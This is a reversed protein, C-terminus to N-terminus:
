VPSRVAATRGTAASRVSPISRYRPNTLGDWFEDITPCRVRKAVIYDLITVFDAYAYETIISAGGDVLTHFVLALTHGNAIATDIRSLVTAVSVGGVDLAQMRYPDNMPIPCYLGSDLRGIKINQATAGAIVTTNQSGGPYAMYDASRTFGNAVLWNHCTLIETEVQSQTLTVLDPHTATHNGIAWGSAYMEQLQVLAIAGVGGVTSSIIYNTGKLGRAQMAPFAKTYHTLRNDDFTLLINPINDVNMRLDSITASWNPMSGSDIVFILRIMTNDWSEAGDKIFDSKNIVVRNWGYLLSSTKRYAFNVSANSSFQIEVQEGAASTCYIWYTIRKMDRLSLSITKQIKYVSSPNTAAFQLGNSGIKFHTPDLAFSGTGSKTSWGTLSNLQDISTGIATICNQPLASRTM